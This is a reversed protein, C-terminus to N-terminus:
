KTIITQYNQGEGEQIETAGRGWSLSYAEYDLDKKQEM